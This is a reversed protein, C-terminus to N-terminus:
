VRPPPLEPAVTRSHPALAITGVARPSVLIPRDLEAVAIAIFSISCPGMLQCAGPTAPQDCPAPSDGSTPMPMDMEMDMGAMAQDAASEATHMAGHDADVCAAGGGALLLQFAFSISLLAAVLPSRTM